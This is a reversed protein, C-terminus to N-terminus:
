LILQNLHRLLYGGQYPLINTQVKVKNMFLKLVTTFSCYLSLRKRREEVMYSKISLADGCGGVEVMIEQSSEFRIQDGAGSSLFVRDHGPGLARHTFAALM